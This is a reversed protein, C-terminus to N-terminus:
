YVFANQSFKEAFSSCRSIGSFKTVFKASVFYDTSPNELSVSTNLYIRGWHVKRGVFAVPNTRREFGIRQMPFGYSVAQTRDCSIYFDIL